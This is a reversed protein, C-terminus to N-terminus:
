SAKKDPDTPALPTDREARAQALTERVFAPNREILLLYSRDSGLPRHRGQEWDRIQSVSFGFERAFDEQTLRLATRVSRVDVESPVYVRAPPIEGRAIQRAERVAELLREGAKTM